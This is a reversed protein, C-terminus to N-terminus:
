SLNYDFHWYIWDDSSSGTMIMVRVMRCTVIHLLIEFSDVSCDAIHFSYMKWCIERSLRVIYMDIIPRFCGELRHCDIFAVGPTAVVFEISESYRRWCTLDSVFLFSSVAVRVAFSSVAVGVTKNPTQLPKSVAYLVTVHAFISMTRAVLLHRFSSIPSHYVLQCQLLFVSLSITAATTGTEGVELCSGSSCGVIWRWIVWGLIRITM